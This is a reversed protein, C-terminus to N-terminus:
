GGLKQVPQQRARFLGEGSLEVDGEQVERPDESWHARVKPVGARQPGGRGAMDPALLRHVPLTSLNGPHEESIASAQNTQCEIRLDM